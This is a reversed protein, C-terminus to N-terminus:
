TRTTQETDQVFKMCLYYATRVAATLYKYM